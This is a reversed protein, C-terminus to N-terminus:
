RSQERVSEGDIRLRVVRGRTISIAVKKSGYTIDSPVSKKGRASGAFVLLAGIGLVVLLPGVGLRIRRKRAIWLPISADAQVRATWCFAVLATLTSLTLPWLWAPRTKAARRRTARLRRLTLLLGSM